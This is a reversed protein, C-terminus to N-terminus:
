RDAAPTLEHRSESSNKPAACGGLIHINLAGLKLGARFNRTTMAM